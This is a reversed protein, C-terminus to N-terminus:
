SSQRKVLETPIEVRLPALSRREMRDTILLVAVRAMEAAPMRVTTLPPSIQQAPGIDDFGCIAVDDPVQLGVARLSAVLDIALDDNFCLVAVKRGYEVLWRAVEGAYAASEGPGPWHQHTILYDAVEVPRNAERLARRMGKLRRKVAFHGTSQDSAFLIPRKPYQELLYRTAKYAGTVDDACVSICGEQIRHIM